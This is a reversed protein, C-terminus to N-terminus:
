AIGAMDFDSATLVDTEEPLNIVLAGDGLWIGIGHEGSGSCTPPPPCPFPRVEHGAGERCM